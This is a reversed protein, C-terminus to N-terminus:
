LYYYIPIFLLASSQARARDMRKILSIWEFDSYSTLYIFFFTPGHIYMPPIYGCHLIQFRLSLILM